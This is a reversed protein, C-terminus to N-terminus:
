YLVFHIKYYFLFRKLAIEICYGNEGTELSLSRENQNTGCIREFTFLCRGKVKFKQCRLKVNLKFLDGVQHLVNKLKRTNDQCKNVAWCTELTKGGMM